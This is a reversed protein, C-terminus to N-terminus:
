LIWLVGCYGVIGRLAGSPALKLTMSREWDRDRDDYYLKYVVGGNGGRSSHAHSVLRPRDKYGYFYSIVESRSVKIVFLM